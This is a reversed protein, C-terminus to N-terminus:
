LSAEEVSKCIISIHDSSCGELEKYTLTLNEIEGPNVFPRKKRSIVREGDL